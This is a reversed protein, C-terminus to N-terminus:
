QGDALFGVVETTVPVASVMIKQNFLRACESPNGKQTLRRNDIDFSHLSVKENMYGGVRVIKDKWFVIDGKRFRELSQSGGKRRRKGGKEFQFNHLQRRPYHHRKWLFFSCARLVSLGIERSSIVLADIAHSYISRESKNSSKKVGYEKRLEATDIGYVLKVSGFWEFLMDYLIAKGIEATSFYRGWKNRYHDFRVDEVVARTIPYLQRLEDIIRLRFDVKAKQSPAIWGNPRRRNDFRCPRRRCKRIRRFRRQRRRQNIRRVIGKPMELMGTQMVEGKSVVAIGDFKAGPDVGLVMEQINNGAEVELQVYFIGLRNWKPLARGGKIWRRARSAKTPMRPKGDKGLM